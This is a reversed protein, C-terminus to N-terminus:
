FLVKKFIFLYTYSEKLIVPLVKGFQQSESQTKM